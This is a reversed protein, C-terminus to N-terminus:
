KWKRALQQYFDQMVYFAKKKQGQESLLGKRNWGDQLNPLLRKPSRFDVLIWPTTGRLSPINSLMRVQRRYLQEQHEESWSSATDKDGHNGYLAEGGFESIVLPKNYPTTWPVTALEERWPVYWGAYENCGLVDLYQGLPDDISIESGNWGKVELAATILRTNDLRRAEEALTKLFATRPESIPTENAVSWLVVSARNRDRTIMENLQSKAKELVAPNTFQVTWYVPIESWVMLGMRDAVRTMNENHPYHALRVYNCGMEKAWGLLMEADSESYARGMRQPVEEHICAGRLFVSKGNLLIDPGKVALSRFGIQERVTDTGATLAVDYRYPNEPTWLTLKAPFSLKAMGDAGATVKRSIKAGPISVTVTQAKKPGNLKVWGEVQGRNNKGLQVFYDEIFTDPTEVLTVDRTIGGYNWWDTNITPVNEAARRNDAKVVVFNRGNRLSDTVEFAFPTFGGEHEGVKSGNLYVHAKYNVAGFHLFYRKGPTKQHNFAKHYWITGEYYQLKPDQSNWDGPVNLQPAGEFSYEVFDNKGTAKAAKFFGNPNETYRYTYFGTEYPDIIIQWKGNLSMGKRGPVNTITQASAFSFALLLLLLSGTKKM